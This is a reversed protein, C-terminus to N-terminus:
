ASKGAIQKFSEHRAAGIQKRQEASLGTWFEAYKDTGCEAWERAKILLADDPPPAPPQSSAGAPHKQGAAWEALREGLREDIVTGPEVMNDFPERMDSLELDPVGKSRPPLMLSFITEFTIKESAIPQYGMNQPEKGSELKMKEKARFCLVIPIDLDIMRYIFKNEWSKPEIWATWTMRDRKKYDTGAMRDLNKEHQEIMGGPGDHAHSVSDIIVCGPKSEAVQLLAEDYREYSFPAHIDCALYKFKDAYQHGRKGEANIMVIDGGRSLGRALRHASYTKGSKSPGALGIILPTDERVAPRITFTM